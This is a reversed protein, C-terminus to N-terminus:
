VQADRETRGSRMFSSAVHNKLINRAEFVTTTRDKSDVGEEWFHACRRLNCFHDDASTPPCTWEMGKAAGGMSEMVDASNHRDCFYFIMM